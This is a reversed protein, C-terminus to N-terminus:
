QKVLTARFKASMGMFDYTGEIVLTTGNFSKIVGIFDYSGGRVTINNGDLSWETDYTSSGNADCKTGADEYRASLDANLTYIDDKECDDMEAYGDQTPVGPMTIDLKTLKYSGALSEKTAGVPEDDKDKKCAGLLIVSLAFTFLIRISTKKMRQIKTLLIM